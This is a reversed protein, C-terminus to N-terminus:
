WTLDCWKLTPYVVLLGLLGSVPEDLATCLHLFGDLANTGVFYRARHDALKLVHWGAMLLHPWSGKEVGFALHTLPDIASFVPYVKTQHFSPYQGFALFSVHGGFEFGGLIRTVLM